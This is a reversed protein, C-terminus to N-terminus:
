SPADGYYGDAEPRTDERWWQKVLWAEMVGEVGPPLYSHISFEFVQESHAASVPAKYVVWSCGANQTNGYQRADPVPFMQLNREGVRARVQVVEAVYPSHRYEAEGKKLRVHIALVSRGEFRPLRCSFSQGNPRMGAKEFRTADAFRLDMWGVSEAKNLELAVGHQAASTATLERHANDKKTPPGVEL